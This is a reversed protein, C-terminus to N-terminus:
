RARARKIAKRPLSRLNKTAMLRGARGAIRILEKVRDVHGYVRGQAFLRRGLGLVGPNQLNTKLRLDLKGVLAAARFQGIASPRFVGAFEAYAWFEITREQVRFDGRAHGRFLEEVGEFDKVSTSVLTTRVLFMDGAPLVDFFAAFPSGELNLARQVTSYGDLSLEGSLTLQHLPLPVIPKIAPPNAQVHSSSILGVVLAIAIRVSMGTSEAFFTGAVVRQFRLTASNGWGSAGLTEGDSDRRERSV